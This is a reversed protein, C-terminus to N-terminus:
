YRETVVGTVPNNTAHGSGSTIMTSGRLRNSQWGANTELTCPDGIVDFGFVFKIAKKWWTRAACTGEWQAVTVGGRKVYRVKAFGGVATGVLVAIICIGVVICRKASM